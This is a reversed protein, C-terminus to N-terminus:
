KSNNELLLKIERITLRKKVKLSIIKKLRNLAETRNYRRVLGTDNQKFLLIGIETYFKITSYRIGSLLVLESITIYESKKVKELNRAKSM